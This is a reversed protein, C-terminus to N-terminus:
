TRDQRWDVPSVRGCPNTLELTGGERYRALIGAAIAFVRLGDGTRRVSGLEARCHRFTYTSAGNRTAM